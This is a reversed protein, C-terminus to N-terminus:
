TLAQLKTAHTLSTVPEINCRQKMVWPVTEGMHTMILGPATRPETIPLVSPQPPHQSLSAGATSTLLDAKIEGVVLDGQLKGPPGQSLSFSPPTHSLIVGEAPLESTHSVLSLPAAWLGRPM